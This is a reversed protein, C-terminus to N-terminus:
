HSRLPTCPLQRVCKKSTAGCTLACSRSLSEVRPPCLAMVDLDRRRSVYVSFHPFIAMLTRLRQSQLMSERLLVGQPSSSVSPSKAVDADSVAKGIEHSLCEPVDKKDSPQDVDPPVTASVDPWQSLSASSTAAPDLTSAAQPYYPVPPVMVLFIQTLMYELRDLRDETGPFSCHGYMPHFVNAGQAELGTSNGFSHSVEQSKLVATRHMRNRRKASKSPTFNCETVRSCPRVDLPPTAPASRDATDSNVPRKLSM